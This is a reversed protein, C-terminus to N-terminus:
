CVPARSLISSPRLDKASSCVLLHLFVVLRNQVDLNPLAGCDGSTHLDAPAHKLCPVRILLRTM